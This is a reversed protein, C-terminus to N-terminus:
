DNGAKAKKYKDAAALALVVGVVLSYFLISILLL